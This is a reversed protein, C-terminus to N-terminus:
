CSPEAPIPLEFRLERGDITAGGVASGATVELPEGAPTEGDADLWDADEAVKSYTGSLGGGEGSWTFTLSRVGASSYYVELQGEDGNAILNLTDLSEIGDIAEIRGTTQDSPVCRVIQSMEVDAGDITVSGSAGRGADGDAADDEDIVGGADSNTTTGEEGGACAVLAAALVLPVALTRTRTRAVHSPRTIATFM